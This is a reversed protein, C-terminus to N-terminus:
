SRRMLGTMLTCMVWGYELYQLIALLDETRREAENYEEMNPLPVRVGVTKGDSPAWYKKIHQRAFLVGALMVPSVAMVVYKHLSSSGFALVLGAVLSLLCQLIHNACLCVENESCHWVAAAGSAQTTRTKNLQNEVESSWKALKKTTAEYKRLNVIAFYSQVGGYVSVIVQCLQMLVVYTSSKMKVTNAPYHELLLSFTNLSTTSM